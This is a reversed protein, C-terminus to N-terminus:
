FKERIEIMFLAFIKHEDLQTITRTEELSNQIVLAAVRVVCQHQLGLGGDGEEAGEFFHGLALNPDLRDVGSSM